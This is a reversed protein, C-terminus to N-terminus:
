KCVKTIIIKNINKCEKLITLKNLDANEFVLASKFSSTSSSSSSNRYYYNLIYNRQIGGLYFAKCLVTVPRKIIINLGSKLKM